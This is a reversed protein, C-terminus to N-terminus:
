PKDQKKEADLRSNLSARLMARLWKTSGLRNFEEWESKTARVAITKGSKTM